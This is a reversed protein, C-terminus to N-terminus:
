SPGFFSHRSPTIRIQAQRPILSRCGNRMTKFSDAPTLQLSLKSSVFNGVYLQFIDDIEDSTLKIGNITRPLTRDSGRSGSVSDVSLPMSPPFLAPQTIAPQSYGLSDQSSPLASQNEGSGIVNEMQAAATLMAIPSSISSRAESTRLKRRLEDTEQELESLRRKLVNASSITDADRKRCM